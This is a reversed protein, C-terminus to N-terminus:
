NWCFDNEEQPLQPIVANSDTMTFFEPSSLFGFKNQYFNENCVNHSDYIGKFEEWFVLCLVTHPGLKLYLPGFGQYFPKFGNAKYTKKVCDLLGEYIRDKASKATVAQKYMKTLVMDFPTMTLSLVIGAANSALFTTLLPNSKFSEFKSLSEKAVAFTTLQSTSIFARPLSATAGRFFGRIGNERYIRRATEGYTEKGEHKMKLLYFPSSLYQGLIGGVGSM